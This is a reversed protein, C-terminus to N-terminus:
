VPILCIDGKQPTVGISDLDTAYFIGLNYLAGNTDAGRKTANTGGYAVSIASGNWVGKTVTGLISLNSSTGSYSGNWYALTNSTILNTGTASTWGLSGKATNNTIARLTVASTGNGILAYGSTLTTKGTGGQAVTVANKSTLINYSGNATLGSATQPLYYNEYYSTRTNPASSSYSYQRFFFRSNNTNSSTPKNYLLIGGAASSNTPNFYILADDTGNKLTFNGTLIGGNETIVQKWGSFTPTADAGNQYFYASYTVHTSTATTYTGNGYYTTGDTKNIVVTGWEAPSDSSAIENYGSNRIILSSDPAMAKYINVLTAPKTLGLQSVSTYVKRGGLNTLATDPDTAGTGGQPITVAEKSTLLKYWKHETLNDTTAAPLGYGEYKGATSNPAHNILYLRNESDSAYLGGINDGNKNALYLYSYNNSNSITLNGTLTGGTLPLYGTVKLNDIFINEGNSWVASPKSGDQLLLFQTKNNATSQNTSLIEVIPSTGTQPGANIQLTSSKEEAAFNAGVNIGVRGKRVAMDVDALFYRYPNTDVIITGGSNNSFTLKFQATVDSYTKTANAITFKVLYNAPIDSAIFSNDEENKNNYFKVTYGSIPSVVKPTISYLNSYLQSSCLREPLQIYGVLMESNSSLNLSDILVSEAIWRAVKFSLTATSTYEKTVEAYAISTKLTLVISLDESASPATVTTVNNVFNFKNTSYSSALYNTVIGGTTGGAADTWTFNSLNITAIEGPNYYKKSQAYSISGFNSPATIYNFTFDISGNVKATSYSGQSLYVNIKGKPYVKRNKIVDNYLSTLKNKLTTLNINYSNTIITSTNAGITGQGLIFFQNNYELEITYKLGQTDETATLNGYEWAFSFGMNQYTVNSVILNSLKPSIIKTVTHTQSYSTIGYNNTIKMRYGLISGETISTINQTFTQPSSFTGITSFAGGDIQQELVYTFSTGTAASAKVAAWQLTVAAHAHSYLGSTFGNGSDYCALWFSTPLDFTTVRTLTGTTIKTGPTYSGNTTVYRPQVSITFDSGATVQTIDFNYSTATTSTLFTNNNLYIYYYATANNVASAASWSLSIDTSTAGSYTKSFAISPVTTIQNISVTNSSTSSGYGIVTPQAYVKYTGAVSSSSSSSLTFGLEKINNQWSSNNKYLYYYDVPNNTGASAASWSFKFASPLNTTGIYLATVGNVRLNSPAGTSTVEKVTFPEYLTSNGWWSTSGDSQLTVADVRSYYTGPTTPATFQYSRTTSSLYYPYSAESPSYDGAIESNQKDNSDYVEITYGLISNEAGAPMTAANWNITIQGGPAVTDSNYWVSNPPIPPQNADEWEVECYYPNAKYVSGTSGTSTTPNRYKGRCICITLSSTETILNILSNYNNYENDDSDVGSFYFRDTINGNEATIRTASSIRPATDSDIWYNGNNAPKSASSLDYVHFNDDVGKWIKAYFSFTINTIKASSPIIEGDYKTLTVPGAYNLFTGDASPYGVFKTINSM